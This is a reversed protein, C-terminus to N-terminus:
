KTLFYYSNKSSFYFYYCWLMKWNRDHLKYQLKINNKTSEQFFSTVIVCFTTFNAFDWCFIFLRAKDFCKLIISSYVCQFIIYNYFLQSYIYSTPLEAEVGGLALSKSVECGSPHPSTQQFGVWYRRFLLHKQSSVKCLLQESQARDNGYLLQSLLSTKSTVELYCKGIVFNDTKKLGLQTNSGM